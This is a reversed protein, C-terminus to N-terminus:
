PAEFLFGLTYDGTAGLEVDSELVVVYDGPTFLGGIRAQQSGGADLFSCRLDPETCARALSLVPADLGAPDGRADIVVRTASALTFTYFVDGTSYAPDCVPDHDDAASDELTGSVIVTAPRAAPVTIETADACADGGESPTAAACEALFRCDVDDCDVLTDGDEDVGGTCVEDPTVCAGPDAADGSCYGTATCQASDTCGGVCFGTETNCQYGTRCDSPGTCNTACIFPGGIFGLCTTDGPCTACFDPDTGFPSCYGGPWGSYDEFLCGGGECDDHSDCADGLAGDGGACDASGGCEFDACDTLTDADDDEGDGCDSEVCNAADACSAADDCDVLGNLDDDEGDDCDELCATDGWCQSDECDVLGNGNDDDGDDCDEPEGCAVSVDFEGEAGDYGDVVLYYTTSAYPAFAITETATGASYMTCADETCADELLFVDLDGPGAPEVTVVVWRGAAGAISYVREPGTEDAEFSTGAYTQLESEGGTNTEGELSDGCTLIVPDECTGAGGGGEDAAGDDNGDEGGGEVEPEADAEVDAEAGPDADGDVGIEADGEGGTDAPQADDGCGAATTALGVALIAARCVLLRM